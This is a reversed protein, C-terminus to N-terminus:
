PRGEQLHQRFFALGQQLADRRAAAVAADARGGRVVFGHATGPYVLFRAVGSHM